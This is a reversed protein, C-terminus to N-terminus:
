EGCKVSNKFTRRGTKGALQWQMVPLVINRNRIYQRGKRTAFTVREGDREKVQEIRKIFTEGPEYEPLDAVEGGGQVTASTLGFIFFAAAFKHRTMRLKASCAM